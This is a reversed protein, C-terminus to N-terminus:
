VDSLPGDIKLFPSGLDRRRFAERRIYKNGDFFVFAAEFLRYWVM